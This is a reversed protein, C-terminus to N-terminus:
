AADIGTITGLGEGALRQAVLYYSRVVRNVIFGPGDKVAVPERTLQLALDWASSAAKDSTEPHKIVEVLKMAVPPNFFHLGVVRSPKECGKAVDSVLFSSTNTALAVPEPVLHGLQHFLRRKLDLDEFVAEIIFDCAALDSLQHATELRAQAAAAEEPTIKKKDAAKDLSARVAERSKELASPDADNLVVRLGSQLALQAIGRGMTGAGVIGLTEM